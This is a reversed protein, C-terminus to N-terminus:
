VGRSARYPRLHSRANQPLEAVTAGVVENERNAYLSGLTLLVGIKIGSNVVIGQHTWRAARIANEYNEKAAFEAMGREVKNEVLEAATMAAEYSATAASLAAPADAIAATLAEQSAYVNRNLYEVASREAADLKLTIDADEDAVFVNLHAKAQDLTLFTM